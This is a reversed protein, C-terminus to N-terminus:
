QKIRATFKAYRLENGSIEDAVIRSIAPKHHYPDGFNNKDNTIDNPYNFDYVDGFSEIDQKFKSYAGDLNFEHIKQQLEVHTPSLVFVLRINKEDCYDAMKKLELYYNKPYTYNKMYRASLDLQSQWFAERSEPPRYLDIKEDMILSRCILMTSSFTYRNLLYLLMSNKIGISATARNRLLTGSYTEISVGFYIKKIEHKAKVYNFIEFADQLTGGGISLNAIKGIKNTDFLTDGLLGTRSDGLLITPCPNRDYSILKYLYPNDKQAINEKLVLRKENHEASFFNYPDIVVEIAILILFPIIFLLSKLAFKKM